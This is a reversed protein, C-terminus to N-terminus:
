RGSGRDCEVVGLSMFQQCADGCKTESTLVQWCNSFFFRAV